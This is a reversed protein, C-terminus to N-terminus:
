LVAPGAVCPSLAPTNSHNGDILCVGHFGFEEGCEEDRRGAGHKKGLLGRRGVVILLASTLVGALLLILLAAATLLAALAM